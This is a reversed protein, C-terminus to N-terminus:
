SGWGSKPKGEDPAAGSSSGAQNWGTAPAGSEEPVTRVEKNWGSTAPSSSESNWGLQSSTTETEDHKWGSPTGSEDNSKWGSQSRPAGSDDNTKWGSQSRPTGSEDNSERKWGSQSRPTGAEDLGPGRPPRPQPKKFYKPKFEDFKDPYKVKVYNEVCKIYSFDEERGDTSVVFFCRSEQFKTHKNVMIHKVGAGTKQVKDPHHNFVNDLIYTQDDASLPDGDNY